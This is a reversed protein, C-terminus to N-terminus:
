LLSAAARSRCGGPVDPLADALRAQHVASPPDGHRADHARRRRCPPAAGLPHVLLGVAAPEPRLQARGVLHPRHALRVDLRLQQQGVSGMARDRRNAQVCTGPEAPRRAGPLVVRAGANNWLTHAADRGWRSYAQSIDQLAVLCTVGQQGGEALLAPLSDIPSVHAAEDLALLLPPSLRGGRQVALELARGAIADILASTLPALETMTRSPSVVYVTGCETLLRDIDLQPTKAPDTSARISDRVAWALATAATARISGAHEGEPLGAIALLEARATVANAKALAALPVEFAGGLVWTRVESIPAGSLAAAHLLPALLQRGMAAFHAANKATTDRAHPALMAAAAEVAHDWTECRLLPTWGVTLDPRGVSGTPDYLWVPGYQARNAWTRLVDPKTSTVVAGGAGWCVVAPKMVSSTKGSGTPGVVLASQGRPLFLSAAKQKFRKGDTYVRM